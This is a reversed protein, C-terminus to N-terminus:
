RDPSWFRADPATHGVSAAHFVGAADRTGYVVVAGGVPLIGTHHAARAQTIDVNTTRGDRLRLTLRDGRVAVVRGHLQSQLDPAAASAAFAPASLAALLAACGIIRPLRM